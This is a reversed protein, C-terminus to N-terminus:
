ELVRTQLNWKRQEPDKTGRYHRSYLLYQISNEDKVKKKKQLLLFDEESKKQYAFVLVLMAKEYFRLPM